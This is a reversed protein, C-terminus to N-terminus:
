PKGALKGGLWLLPEAVNIPYVPGRIRTSGQGDPGPLLNQFDDPDYSGTDPDVYFGIASTVFYRVRGPEFTQELLSLALEANGSRSVHCLEVLFERADDDDVRPFGPPDPAYGLLGLKQAVALVRIEDFKTICVAVYHPLRQGSFERMRQSLQALAGFIHDFADGHDFERIPDYCFVIARSRALDDVLGDPATRDLDGPGVLEGAADVLELSIRAPESRRQSSWRGRITRALQGSLTWRYHEVGKTSSPFARDSILGTTLGVLKQTAPGDEGTIRWAPGHRNLAISLAALFTTKGSGPAGWMTVGYEQLGESRPM